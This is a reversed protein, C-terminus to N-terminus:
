LFSFISDPVCFVSRLFHFPWRQWYATEIRGVNFAYVTYVM